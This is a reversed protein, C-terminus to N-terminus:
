RVNGKSDVFLKKVRKGDVLVRVEYGKDSPTASLVRGGTKSRVIDSAQDLSVGARKAASRPQGGPDAGSRWPREAAAPACICALTLFLLWGPLVRARRGAHRRPKEDHKNAPNGTCSASVIWQRPTHIVLIRLPNPVLVTM